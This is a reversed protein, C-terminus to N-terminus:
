LSEVSPELLVGAPAGTCPLFDLFDLSFMGFSRVFLLVVVLPELLRLELLLLLPVDSLLSDLRSRSPVLSSPFKEASNLLSLSDLRLLELLLMFRGESFSDSWEVSEEGLPDDLLLEFRDPLLLLGLLLLLLKLLLMFRGDSFSVSSEVLCGGLPDDLVVEFLELLLCELFPRLLLPLLL